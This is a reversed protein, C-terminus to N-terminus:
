QHQPNQKKITRDCRKKLAKVCLMLELTEDCLLGKIMRDDGTMEPIVVAQRQFVLSLEQEPGKKKLMGLVEVIYFHFLGRLHGDQDAGGRHLESKSQILELEVIEIINEDEPIVIMVTEVGPGEHTMHVLGADIEGPIIKHAADGTLRSVAVDPKMLHGMGESIDIEDRLGLFVLVELPFKGIKGLHGPRDEGGHLPFMPDPIEQPIIGGGVVVLEPRYGDLDEEFARDLETVLQGFQILGHGPDEVLVRQHTNGAAGGKEETGFCDQLFLHRRLGFRDKLLM